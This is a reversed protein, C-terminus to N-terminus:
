GYDFPGSGNRCRNIRTCVNNSCWNSQCQINTSCNSGDPLTTQPTADGIPPVTPQGASTPVPSVRITSTPTRTPISNTRRDLCEQRCTSLNLTCSGNPTLQCNCNSDCSYGRCNTTSNVWQYNVCTSIKGNRCSTAGQSSCTSPQPTPTRNPERTPVPSLLLKFSVTSTPTPTPIASNLCCFQNPATCYGGAVVGGTSCTTSCSASSTPGTGCLVTNRSDQCSGSPSQYGPNGGRCTLGTNCSVGMCCSQNLGGCQTNERDAMILSITPTPIVGNCRPTGFNWTHQGGTCRDCSPYGGFFIYSGGPNCIANPPLPTPTPISTPPPTNTPVTTPTRTPVPNIRRDLCEQRCTSLNLTCSGNPTLQCNCSSDCSYGRCNTTSNVWQYNICTSIKGNRCSTAGQSSCTSSQQTPTPTRNPVMTPFPSLILRFSATSTPTPTLTPTPSFPSCRPDDFFNWIHQGGQCLNCNPFRSYLIYSGGPNCIANPLLPM